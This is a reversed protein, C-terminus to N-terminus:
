LDKQPPAASRCDCADGGASHKSPLSCALTYRSKRELLTFLVGKHGHSIVTDGEWDGIRKKADLVAPRHEIGVRNNLM